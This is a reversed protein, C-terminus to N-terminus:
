PGWRCRITTAGLGNAAGVALRNGAASGQLGTSPAPASSRRGTLASQAREVELTM